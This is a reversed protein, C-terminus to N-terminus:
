PSEVWESRTLTANSKRGWLIVETAFRSADGRYDVPHFSATQSVARLGAGGEAAGPRFFEPFSRSFTRPGPAVPDAPSPIHLRQYEVLEALEAEDPVIGAASLYREVASRLEECFRDRRGALRLFVAEEADWWVPGHGPLLVGRGGGALIRGLHEELFAVEGGLLGGGPNGLLSAVFGTQPLRHRRALYQLVFFALKLGHLAMTLWSFLMMRRWDDAPLTGTGVVIEQYEPVAGRPRPSGHIETLLIRRTEIGHRRRFDAGDLETNPYVECPYLFLQGRFGSQLVTEIGAVWSEATEGPLGLILETYVPTGERNFRGLLERYVDLSVNKRRVNALVRDDLSQLSLTVGKELGHRFLLTGIEHIREGGTKTYCARFKEPFGYRAKADAVLGAIELDRRRIGFNADANFLYRIGHRGCWDIEAAVRELGFRRDAGRPGNKEWACYACTFPCGRGTELIAQYTMGGPEAMLGDFLGELYPSPFADLDARLPRDVGNVVCAGGPVRRWAVCPIGDLGSGAAHRLLIERFAEEGEGRVAVDVFPHRRFYDAPAFPVQPGGFVVLCDPFRRKV